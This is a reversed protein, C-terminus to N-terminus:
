GGGSHGCVPHSAMPQTSMEPMTAAQLATYTALNLRPQPIRHWRLHDGERREYLNSDSYGGGLKIEHEVHDVDPAIFTGIWNNQGKATLTSAVDPNILNFAGRKPHLVYDVGKQSLWLSMNTMRQRESKM